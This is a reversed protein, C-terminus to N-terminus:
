RTAERAVHQYLQKMLAGFIHDYYLLYPALLSTFDGGGDKYPM